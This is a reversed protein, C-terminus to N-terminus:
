MFWQSRCNDCYCQTAAEKRSLGTALLTVGGTLIAATAKGGSIGSKRDVNKTRVLGRTQCAPCIVAPNREGYRNNRLEAAIRQAKEREKEPDRHARDYWYAGICFAVVLIFLLGDM